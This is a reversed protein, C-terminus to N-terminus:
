EHARFPCSAIHYCNKLNQQPQQKNQKPKILVLDSDFYLFDKLVKQCSIKYDKRIRPFTRMGQRHIYLLYLVWMALLM